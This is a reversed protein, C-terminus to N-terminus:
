NEQKRRLVAYRSRYRANGPDLRAAQQMATLAGELDGTQDYLDGLLAYVPATPSLTLAKRALLIAEPLKQRSVLYFQALARYGDARTPELQISKLYAAEAAELRQLLLNVNGIHFHHMGRDPQLRVLQEYCRLADPLKGAQQYMEALYLRSAGDASNIDAARRWLQEARSLDGQRQYVRGVDTHTHAVSRRTVQLPDFDRRVDRGKVQEQAKLQRFKEQHLRAEDPQKLAACVRALGYHAEASAPSTEMASTFANKAKDYDKLQQYAQGLM